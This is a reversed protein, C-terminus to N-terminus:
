CAVPCYRTPYECWYMTEMGLPMTGHQRNEPDPIRAWGLYELHGMQPGALARLTNRCTRLSV